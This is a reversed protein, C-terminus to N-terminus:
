RQPGQGAACEAFRGFRLRQVVGGQEIFALAGQDGAQVQQATGGAADVQLGVDEVLIVAGPQDDVFQQGGRAAPHLHPHQDVLQRRDGVQLDQAGQGAGVLVELQPDVIRGEALGPQVVEVIGAAHQAAEAPEVLAHVVLQQDDVIRDAHDTAAVVLVVIVVPVALVVEAVAVHQDGPRFRPRHGGVEIREPARRAAHRGFPQVIDTAGQEVGADRVHRRRLEAAGLPHFPDALFGVVGGEDGAREDVGRQRHVRHAVDGVQRALVAALAGTRRQGALM